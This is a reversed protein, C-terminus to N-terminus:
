EKKQPSVSAEGPNRVSGSNADGVSPGQLTLWGNWRERARSIKAEGDRPDPGFDTGRSLRNLTQRTIMRVEIVPDALLRILEKELHMRKRGIVNVTVWRALPDPDRLKQVLTTYREDWLTRFLERAKIVLAIQLFAQLELQEKALRRELQRELEKRQSSYRQILVQPDPGQISARARSLSSYVGALALDYGHCGPYFKTFFSRIDDINAVNMAGPLNKQYASGIMLSQQRGVALIIEMRQRRALIVSELFTPNTLVQHLNREISPWYPSERSVREALHTFAYMLEKLDKSEMTLTQFKLSLRSFPEAFGLEFQAATNIGRVFAPITWLSYPVDELTKAVWAGSKQLSSQLEADHLRGQFRNSSVTSVLVYLQILDETEPNGANKLDATVDAIVKAAKAYDKSKRGEIAAVALILAGQVARNTDDSMKLLQPLVAKAAQGLQGLALIAGLRRTPNSDELSDRLVKLSEKQSSSKKAANPAAWQSTRNVASLGDLLERDNLSAIAMIATLAQTQVERNNQKLNELLAPLAANAEPGLRILASAAAARIKVEPYHLADVLATVADKSEHFVAVSRVASLRVPLRTDKLVPLLETVTDVGVEHLAFAALSCVNADPDRLAKGLAVLAPRAAPGMEALVEAALARLKADKDTLFEAVAIVAQRAEPGIVGLAGLARRQIEPKGTELAKILEDVAAPGIQALTRAAQDAQGDDKLRLYGALVPVAEKAAAGKNGLERMVVLRNHRSNNLSKILDAVTPEACSGPEGLTCFAFALGALILKSM